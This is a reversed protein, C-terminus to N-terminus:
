QKKLIVRKSLLIVLKSLWKNVQCDSNDDTKFKNRIREEDIKDVDIGSWKKQQKYSEYNHSHFYKRDLNPNKPRHKGLKWSTAKTGPKRLCVSCKATGQKNANMCVLCIWPQEAVALKKAALKRKYLEEESIGSWRMFIDIESEETGKERM